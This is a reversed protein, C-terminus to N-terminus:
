RLDVDIFILYKGLLHLNFRNGRNVTKDTTLRDICKLAGLRFTLHLCENIFQSLSRTSSLFVRQGIYQLLRFFQEHGLLEFARGSIISLHYAMRGIVDIPQTTQRARKDTGM